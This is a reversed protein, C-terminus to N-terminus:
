TVLCVLECAHVHWGQGGQPHPSAINIKRSHDGGFAPLPRHPQDKKKKREKKKEEVLERTKDTAPRLDMFSPFFKEMGTMGTMGPMGAFIREDSRPTPYM